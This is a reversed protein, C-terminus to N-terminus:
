KDGLEKSAAERVVADLWAHMSKGSKAIAQLAINKTEAKVGELQGDVRTLHTGGRPGPIEYNFDGAPEGEGVVFDILYFVGGIVWRVRVERACVPIHRLPLEAEFQPNTTNMIRAFRTGRLWPPMSEDGFVVRGGVKTVRAFEALARPIDSFEGLGGFHYVADFCHDPFPLWSGNSLSFEVPVSVNKLRAICRELMVPSIDQLYLGGTSDLRKAILESDRGTGASVELVRHHPQLQLTDIMKNRITTEDEWFTEFTLHLYRDYADARQNYFTKAKEDTEHLTPPYTLDPSGASITYIKGNPSVLRGTIVTGSHEQDIELRL